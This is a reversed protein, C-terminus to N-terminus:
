PANAFPHQRWTTLQHKKTNLLRAQLTTTVPLNPRRAQQCTWEAICDGRPLSHAPYLHRVLKPPHPLLNTINVAHARSYLFITTPIPTLPQHIRSQYTPFSQPQTAALPVYLAKYSQITHAHYQTLYSQWFTHCTTLYRV